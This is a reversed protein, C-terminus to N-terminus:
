RQTKHFVFFFVTVGVSALLYVFSTVVRVAPVAGNLAVDLDRVFGVLLVATLLFMGILAFFAASRLSM